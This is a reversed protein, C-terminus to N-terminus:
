MKKKKKIVPAEVDPENGEALIISGNGPSEWDGNKSESYPWSLQTKITAFCKYKNIKKTLMNNYMYLYKNSLSRPPIKLGSCSSSLGQAVGEVGAVGM